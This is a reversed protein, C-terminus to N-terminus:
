IDDRAFGQAVAQDDSRIWQVLRAVSSAGELVQRIDIDQSIERSEACELIALAVLLLLKERNFHDVAFVPEHRKEESAQNRVITHVSPVIWEFGTRVAREQANRKM